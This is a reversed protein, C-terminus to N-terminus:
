IIDFTEYRFFNHSLVDEGKAMRKKVTERGIKFDSANDWYFNCLRLFVARKLFTVAQADDKEEDLKQWALWVAILGEQRMDEWGYRHTKHALAAIYSHTYAFAKDLTLM